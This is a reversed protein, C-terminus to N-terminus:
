RAIVTFQLLKRFNLQVLQHYIMGQDDLAFVGNFPPVVLSEFQAM